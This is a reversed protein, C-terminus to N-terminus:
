PMVALTDSDGGNFVPMDVPIGLVGQAPSDLSATYGGENREIHLVLKLVGGPLLLMGNWAGTDHQASVTGAGGIFCVICVILFNRM